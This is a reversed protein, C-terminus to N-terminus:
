PEAQLENFAERRVCACSIASCCVAEHRLDLPELKQPASGSSNLPEQSKPGGNTWTAECDQQLLCIGTMKSIRWCCLKWSRVRSLRWRSTDNEGLGVKKFGDLQELETVVPHLGPALSCLMRSSSKRHTAWRTDSWNVFRFSSHQLFFVKALCRNDNRFNENVWLFSGDFWIDMIRTGSCCGSLFSFGACGERTGNRARFRLIRPLTDEITAHIGTSCNACSAIMIHM